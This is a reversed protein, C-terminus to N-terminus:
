FLQLQDEGGEAHMNVLTDAEDPELTDAMEPGAMDGTRLWDAHDVDSIRVKAM